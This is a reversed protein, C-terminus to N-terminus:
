MRIVFLLALTKTWSTQFEVSYFRGRKLGGDDETVEDKLRKKRARLAVRWEAKQWDLRTEGHTRNWNKQQLLERRSM